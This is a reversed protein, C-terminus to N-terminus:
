ESSGGQNEEDLALLARALSSNDDVWARIGHHFDPSSRKPDARHAARAEAQWTRLIQEGTM